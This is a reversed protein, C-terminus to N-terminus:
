REQDVLLKRFVTYKRPGPCVSNRITIVKKRISYLRSFHIIANKIHHVFKFFSNKVQVIENNHCSEITYGIFRTRFSENYFDTLLVSRCLKCSHDSSFKQGRDARMHVIVPALHYMDHLFDFYFRYRTFWNPFLTEVSFCADFSLIHTTRTAYQFKTSLFYHKFLACYM